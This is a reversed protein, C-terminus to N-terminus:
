RGIAAGVLSRPDAAGALMGDPRVDILHAHGFSGGYPLAAVRHGLAALGDSWTTGEELDVVAADPAEWTDFGTGGTGLRWRPASIAQGPDEGHRLLRTIVQLLIQPQADGGMTGAVTRLTGDPRTI